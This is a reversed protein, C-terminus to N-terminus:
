IASNIYSKNKLPCLYGRLLAVGSQPCEAWHVAHGEKM